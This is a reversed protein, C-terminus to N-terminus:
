NLNLSVFLNFTFSHSFLAQPHLEPTFFNLLKRTHTLGQTQDWGCVCVCVCVCVGCICLHVCLMSVSTGHLLFWFCRSYGYKITSLVTWLVFLRVLSLLLCCISDNWYSFIIIIFMFAALLLNGFYMFSHSVANFPYCFQISLGVIIISSKLVESEIISLNLLSGYWTSYDLLQFVIFWSCITRLKHHPLTWLFANLIDLRGFM